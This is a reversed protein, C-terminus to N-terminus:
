QVRGAGAAVSVAATLELPARMARARALPADERATARRPIRYRALLRECPLCYSNPSAVPRLKLTGCRECYKLEYIATKM